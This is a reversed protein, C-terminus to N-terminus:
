PRRASAVLLQQPLVVAGAAGAFQAASAELEREVAARGEDGVSALLARLPGALRAVRDLWEAASPYEAVGDLHESRIAEFGADEILGHLRNEDALAWLGPAGAPPPAAGAVKAVARMPLAAWPNAAADGWVALALRGGGALTRASERLAAGPDAMLMYGCRCLVADVSADDLDLAEADLVRLEVNRENALRRRAVDVMSESFDSCIVRGRDGVARAARASLTGPGAALELVREGPALAVEELMWETAPALQRDVEVALEDWAGASGSWAQLSATRFDNM